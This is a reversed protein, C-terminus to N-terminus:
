QPLRRIRYFLSPSQGLPDEILLLFQTISASPNLDEYTIHQSGIGSRASLTLESAGSIVWDCSAPTVTLDFAGSGGNHPLTSEAPSFSYLCRTGEQTVTHVLTSGDNFTVTIHGTRVTQTTNVAPAYALPGNGQVRPDWVQRRAYCDMGLWPVDSSAVWTCTSKAATVAIPQGYQANDDSCPVFGLANFVLGAPSLSVACLQAIQASMTGTVSGYSASVTSAGEAVGTLLGGASVTAVADSASKWQALNTVDLKSGAADVAQAYLQLTQGPAVTAVGSGLVGVDIRVFSPSPALPSQATDPTKASSCAVLALVVGLPWVRRSLIL